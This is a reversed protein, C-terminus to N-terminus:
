GAGGATGGEVRDIRREADALAVEIGDMLGQPGDASIGEGLAAYLPDPELPFRGLIGQELALGIADMARTMSYGLAGVDPRLGHEIRAEKDIAWYRERLVVLREQFERLKVLAIENGVTERLEPLSTLSIATMIAAEYAGSQFGSEAVIFGRDAGVDNVIERLALVHLKTVPTQWHKCEVLWIAQFGVNVSRVVVDVAHTTRAGQVTEDTTADLGLGRFFQATEEQYAHWNPV